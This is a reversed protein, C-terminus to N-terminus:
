YYLDVEGNRDKAPNKKKKKKRPIDNRRWEEQLGPWGKLGPEYTIDCRLGERIISRM